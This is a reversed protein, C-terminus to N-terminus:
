GTRRLPVVPDSTVPPEPAVAPGPVVPVHATLPWVIDARRDRPLRRGAATVEVRRQQVVGHGQGLGHWHIRDGCLVVDAGFAGRDPHLVVLVAGRAQARAQLRRAVSPRVRHLAPGLLVVDFGDIAAAVIEGWRTDDHDDTPDVMVLRELAVGHEHAARVGLLPMGIVCVWVGEASPRAIVTLALSSAAAGACGIVNGRRAVPLLHGLAPHLPLSRDAAPAVALRDRLSSLSVM